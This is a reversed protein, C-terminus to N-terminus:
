RSENDLELQHYGACLDLHSFHKAGNLDHILDNITPTIHREREIAKNAERMDVCIRIKSPDAKPIVVIPSVWPTPGSVREIIGQEELSTLEQEVQKRIHFPIRRHTQKVPKIEHNVHLHVKFEKLKGIETTFVEKFENKLADRSMTNNKELTNVQVQLLGLATATEYSLLSGHQGKVVYFTGISESDQYTVISTFKGLIPLPDECGYPHIQAGTFSLTPKKLQQYATEDLLNVRAGSDIMVKIVNGQISVNGHPLRDKTGIPSVVFIYEDESDSPEPYQKLGVTNAHSHRTKTNRKSLCCRAYHNSKGCAHCTQGQAPCAKRGGPHPWPGSCNRCKQTKQTPKPKRYNGNQQSNRNHQKKYKNYHKIASVDPEITSPQEKPQEMGKAQAESRELTRAYNLIDALAM